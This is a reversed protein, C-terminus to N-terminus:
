RPNKLPLKLLANKKINQEARTNGRLMLEDASETHFYPKVIRPYKKNTTLM